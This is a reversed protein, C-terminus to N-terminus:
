RRSRPPVLTAPLFAQAEVVLAVAIWLVGTVTPGGRARGGPDGVTLEVVPRARSEHLRTDPRGVPGAGLAQVTEAVDEHQLDDLPQEVGPYGQLLDAGGHLMQAM